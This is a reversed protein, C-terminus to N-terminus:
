LETSTMPNYKLTRLTLKRLCGRSSTQTSLCNQKVDAPYASVYTLNNTDVSSSQIHPIEAHIANGDVVLM